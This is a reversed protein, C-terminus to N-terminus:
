HKEHRIVTGTKYQSGCICIQKEDIEKPVIKNVFDIHKQTREHRRKGYFFINHEM